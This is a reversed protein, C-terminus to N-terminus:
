MLILCKERERERERERKPKLLYLIKGFNSHFKAILSVIFQTNLVSLLDM